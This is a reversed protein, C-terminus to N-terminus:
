TSICEEIRRLSGSRSFLYPASLHGSGALVKCEVQVNSSYFIYVTATYGLYDISAHNNHPPPPVTSLLFVTEEIFLLHLYARLKVRTTQPVERPGSTVMSMVVCDVTSWTYWLGGTAIALMFLLVSFLCVTAVHKHLSLDSSIM